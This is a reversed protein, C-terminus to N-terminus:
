CCGQSIDSTTQNQKKTETDQCAKSKRSKKCLKQNLRKYTCGLRKLIRSLPRVIWCEEYPEIVNRKKADEAIKKWFKPDKFWTNWNNRYYGEVDKRLAKTYDRCDWTRMRWISHYLGKIGVWIIMAIVLILSIWYRHFPASSNWIQPLYYLFLATFLVISVEFFWRHIGKYYFAKEPNAYFEMVDWRYCITVINMIYIHYGQILAIVILLGFVSLILGFFVLVFTLGFGTQPDNGTDRMFYFIATVVAVYINTFWFIEKECHRSHEWHERYMTKLKTISESNSIRNDKNM